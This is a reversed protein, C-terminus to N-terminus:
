KASGPLPRAHAEKSLEGIVSPDEQSYCAVAFYYVTGNALGTLTLGTRKQTDIPSRGEAAIRGLYEGPREGYYVYYGGATPDASIPWSLTVSGDGAEARVSYPPLPPDLERWTLTVETVSPTESGAGDPYLNAAVQFYKGRVEPMLGGRDVPVPVWRPEEATWTSVYDGARVFFQVSTEGPTSSVAEFSALSAGTSAIIPLTEFRGGPLGYIDNRGGSPKETYATEGLSEASSRLIRVEDISGSFNPCFELNAATGLIVQFVEGQEKGSATTYLVDEIRGDIMYEFLGTEADFTVSHHAWKDPIVIRNSRLSVDEIPGASGSFVNTFKWELRNGTFSATIRQFYPYGGVVRSSRWLFV